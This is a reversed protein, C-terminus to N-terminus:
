VVKKSPIKQISNKFSLEKKQASNKKCEIHLITYDFVCERVSSQQLKIKRKKNRYKITKYYLLHSPICFNNYSEHFSKRQTPFKCPTKTSTQLKNNIINNTINNHITTTHNIPTNHRRCTRSDRGNTTVSLFVM